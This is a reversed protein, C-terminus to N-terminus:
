FYLFSDYIHEILKAGHSVFREYGTVIWVVPM